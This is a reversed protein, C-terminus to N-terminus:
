QDERAWITILVTASSITVGLPMSGNEQLAKEARRIGYGFRNVFGLVKLAEAIVPNRYSSETGFNEQTVAGYLGGPSAIEIRDQFVSLRIPTNSEYDRHAVSNLLIERIAVEPYRDRVTEQLPSRQHLVKVNMVRIRLILGELVTQLDGDIEAQDLPVETLDQGPLSLYQVYAGPLFYRPNIGFLLIGANTPTGRHSDFFRLSALQEEITRHNEDIIERAVAASRYAEFLPVSLDAISSELCPRADFTRAASVRKESLIREEQESAIAKRPGIRIWVRGQYRVPPLDSPQVEVVAVDLGGTLTVRQVTMAPLPVINGDSRLGGLRQLLHDTVNLGSPLGTRDDAGIILYGPTRHNPLDNAFACIAQGFKDTNTTSITREVQDSELDALLREILQADM